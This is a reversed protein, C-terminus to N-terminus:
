KEEQDLWFKLSEKIETLQEIDDDDPSTEFDMKNSMLNWLFLTRRQFIKEFGLVEKKPPERDCSTCSGTEPNILKTKGCTICESFDSDDKKKKTKGLQENYRKMEETMNFMKLLNKHQLEDDTIRQLSHKKAKKEPDEQVEEQLKIWQANKWEKYKKSEKYEGNRKYLASLGTEQKYLVRYEEEIPDGSPPIKQTSKKSLEIKM